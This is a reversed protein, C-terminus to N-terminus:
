FLNFLDPCNTILDTTKRCSCCYCRQTETSKALRYGPHKHYKSVSISVVSFDFPENYVSKENVYLSPFPRKQQKGDLCFSKKEMQLVFFFSVFLVFLFVYLSNLFQNIDTISIMPAEDIYVNRHHSTLKSCRKKELLRLMNPKWM